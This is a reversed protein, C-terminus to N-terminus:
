YISRYLAKIENINTDRPNGGTCVDDFAAQALAPIDEERVGVDRLRPPIDVDHSLQRVAHIAAERAQAIPMEATGKVGMAVAIDRFKEGTYDANYAMIHPLLIANAVGHPTNYFAGLPHAMGHVLGLGVNSFGMGAIYQGLAMEEVGKPKGAVSDRLSRSIIEIAKLHLTDTLEWAAKTTFGEIAHTLADIGTAAKLSAPMSMMMDPDVIAVIPIDHPDVCVFKRRKEEDTIVYNITVEAATGSTTPIAIIPVAPRRTAAVGELSRVDAFEPNNIIIGIAKCTDQPSGGGIAILYDAQSAKFREVGREVVAITPNPIVEDYIDYPLGAADLKATIKTAVGFKVLDKDTVLLAKRFGRRRVEDAIHAIAGTGFYSTENLIMRNAM